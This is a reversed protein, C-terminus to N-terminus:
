ISSKEIYEYKESFDSFDLFNLQFRYFNKVIVKFDTRAVWKKISGGALLRTCAHCLKFAVPAPFAASAKPREYGNFPLQVVPIIVAPITDRIFQEKGM